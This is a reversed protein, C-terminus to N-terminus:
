FRLLDWLPVKVGFDFSDRRILGSGSPDPVLYYPKGHLPTVRIWVLRGNVRAEEITETQRRIITVQPELESDIGADPLPELKPPPPAGDTRSQGSVPGAACFAAAMLPIAFTSSLRPPNMKPSSRGASELLREGRAVTTIEAM